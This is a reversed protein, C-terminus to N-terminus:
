PDWVQPSKVEEWSRACLGWGQCLGPDVRGQWGDPGEVGLDQLDFVPHCLSLHPCLLPPPRTQLYSLPARLQPARLLMRSRHRVEKVKILDCLWKSLM